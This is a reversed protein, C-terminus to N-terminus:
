KKAEPKPKSSFAALLGNVSKSANGGLMSLFDLAGSKAATGAVEEVKTVIGEHKKTTGEVAELRELLRAYSADGKADITFKEAECFFRGGSLGKLPGDCSPCVKTAPLAPKADPKADPKTEDDVM